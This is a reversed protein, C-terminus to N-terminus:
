IRIGASVFIKFGRVKGDGLNYIYLTRELCLRLLIKCSFESDNSRSLNSDSEEQTVHLTQKDCARKPNIGYPKRHRTHDYGLDTGEGLGRSTTGWM